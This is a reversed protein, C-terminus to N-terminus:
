PIYVRLLFSTNYFESTSLSRANPNGAWPDRVRVDNIVSSGNGYNTYTLATMVTAHGQSGIILPREAVLDNIVQAEATPDRLNASLDILVKAQPYFAQGYADVWGSTVAQAIAYGPLAQDAQSGFVRQVIAQQSIPHGAHSFILQMCAAWCWNRKLQPNEFAVQNIDGFPIGATCRTSPPSDWTPPLNQCTVAASLMKPVFASAVTGGLIARRTIGQMKSRM